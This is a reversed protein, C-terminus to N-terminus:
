WNSEDKLIKYLHEYCKTQKWNKERSWWEIGEEWLDTKEEWLSMEVSKSKQKTKNQSNRIKDLVLLTAIPKSNDM